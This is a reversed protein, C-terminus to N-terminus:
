TIRLYSLFDLFKGGVGDGAIQFVGTQSNSYNMNITKFIPDTVVGNYEAWSEVQVSLPYGIFYQLGSPLTQGLFQLTTQGSAPVNPLVASPKLPAYTSFNVIIPGTPITVAYLVIKGYVLPTTYSDAEFALFNAGSPVTNTIDTIPYDPAYGFNFELTDLKINFFDDGVPLNNPDFNTLGPGGIVYQAQFVGNYYGSPAVVWDGIQIALSYDKNPVMYVYRDFYPTPFGSVEHPSPPIVLGSSLLGSAVPDPLYYGTWIENPDITNIVTDVVITGSSVLNGDATLGQMNNPPNYFSYARGDLSTLGFPTTLSGLGSPVLEFFAEAGVVPDGNTDLLRGVITSGGSGFNLVQPNVDLSYCGSPTIIQQRDSIWIFGPDLAAHTPNFDWGPISYWGSPSTEYFLDLSDETPQNFYIQGGSYLYQHPDGTLDNVQILEFGSVVIGSGLYDVTSSLIGSVDYVVIPETQIISSYGSVTYILTGSPIVEEGPASFLYYPKNHIFFQGIEAQPIWRDQEDRYFRIFLMPDVEQVGSQFWKPPIGSPMLAFFDPVIGANNLGGDFPSLDWIFGYPDPNGSGWVIPFTQMIEQTYEVFTASPINTNPDVLGSFFVPDYLSNIQAIDQTGSPYIGSTYIPTGSPILGDIFLNTPYQGQPFFGWYDLGLERSTGDIYGQITSNARFEFVELLRDRYDQNLEATLRPTDLLLGFEDFWNWISFFEQAYTLGGITLTGYRERFFFTQNIDDFILYDFFLRYEFYTTGDTVWFYKSNVDYTIGTLDPSYTEALQVQAVAQLYDTEKNGSWTPDTNSLLPGRVDFLYVVYDTGGQLTLVLLSDGNLTAGKFVGTLPTNTIDNLTYIALVDRAQQVAPQIDPIVDVMHFKSLVYSSDVSFYLASQNRQMDTYPIDYHLVDSFTILPATITSTIYSTRTPIAFYWFDNIDDLQIISDGDGICAPIATAAIPNIRPFQVKFVLDMQNIDATQVYLGSIAANYARDAGQLQVGFPNLYQQGSSAPDQRVQTWLPFTNAVQQTMHSFFPKEPQITPNQQASSSFTFNAM